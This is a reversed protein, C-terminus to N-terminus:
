AVIHRGASRRSISYLLSSSPYSSASLTESSQIWKTWCSLLRCYHRWWWNSSQRYHWRSRKARIIELEVQLTTIPIRMFLVCSLFSPYSTICLSSAWFDNQLTTLSPSSPPSPNFNSIRLSFSLSSMPCPPSRAPCHRVRTKMGISNFLQTQWRSYRVSDSFSSGDRQRRVFPAHFRFSASSCHQRDSYESAYSTWTKRLIRLVPIDHKRIVSPLDSYRWNSSQRSSLSSFSPVSTRKPLSSWWFPLPQCLISM